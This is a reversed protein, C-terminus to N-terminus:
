ALPWDSHKQVGKSTHQEQSVKKTQVSPLFIFITERLWSNASMMESKKVLKISYINSISVYETRQSVIGM